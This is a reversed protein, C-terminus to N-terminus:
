KKLEWENTPSKRGETNVIRKGIDQRAQYILSRSYGFEKGLEVIEKPKMPEGNEELLTVLWEICRDLKTPEEYTVPADGYRLVVGEGQPVFEVGIPQPYRVLNTKVVELRRPGNRDPEAGTQVVSLGLVSRAMAIIHSSGRFDDIGVMDFLQGRANGKRLHHVLLLGCGAEQALINLFGLVGRVDEVANEGKSSISSLSDIVILAPALTYAMEVLEDRDEMESFDIFLREGGPLMLYLRSRDMGWAEARANILQPVVEADVYIVRGGPRGMGSGDPWVDEEIIRRALDLAVYSKGAGPVAGLLTIMGVPIWGEWLWEVPSLGKALEELSVYGMPEATLALVGGLEVLGVVRRLLEVREEREGGRHHILRYARDWPEDFEEWKLDTEAGGLLDAVAQAQMRETLM